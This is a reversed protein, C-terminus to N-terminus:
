NGRGIDIYTAVFTRLAPLEGGPTALFPPGGMFFSDSRTMM